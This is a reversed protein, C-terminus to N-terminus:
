RQGWCRQGHELVSWSTNRAWVGVAKNEECRRTEENSKKNMLSGM